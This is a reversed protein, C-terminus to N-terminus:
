LHSAPTFGSGWKPSEKRIYRVLSNIPAGWAKVYTGDSKTFSGITIGLLVPRGSDDTTFWPCGSDGSLVIINSYITSTEPRDDAYKYYVSTIKGPTEESREGYKRIWEGKEPSRYGGSFKVDATHTSDNLLLLTYGVYADAGDGDPPDNRRSVVQGIPNNNKSYLVEDPEASCHGATVALRRNDDNSAFFGLSCTYGNARKIPMGPYLGVSAAAPPANVLGSITAAVVWVVLQTFGLYRM